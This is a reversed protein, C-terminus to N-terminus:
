KVAPSSSGGKGDTTVAKPAERSALVRARKAQKMETTLPHDATEARNYRRAGDEDSLIRWGGFKGGPLEIEDRNVLEEARRRPVRVVTRHPTEVFVTPREAAEKDERTAM